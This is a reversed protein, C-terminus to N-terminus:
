LTAFRTCGLINGDADRVTHAILLLDSTTRGARAAAQATLASVVYFVGKEPEPLGVPQGYETRVVPVSLGDFKVSGVPKESTAARAIGESALVALPRAGSRPTYSGCKFPTCDQEDYLVINHPTLNKITM